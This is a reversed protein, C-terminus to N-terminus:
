FVFSSPSTGVSPSGTTAGAVVGTGTSALLLASIGAALGSGVLSGSNGAFQLSLQAALTTPNATVVSSTDVGAGVGISPGTYQASALATSLGVAVMKAVRDVSTGVVGSARMGGSVLSPDPPVALSGTVTGAGSTGSTVGMLVVNSPVTIWAYVANAISLAVSPLSSGNVEPPGASGLANAILPITLAM